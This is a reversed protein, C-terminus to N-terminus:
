CPLKTARSFRRLRGSHILISKESPKKGGLEGIPYCWHTALQPDQCDTQWDVCGGFWYLPLVRPLYILILSSASMGIVPAGDCDINEFECLVVDGFERKMHVQLTLCTLVAYVESRRVVGVVEEPNREDELKIDEEKIELEDILKELKEKVEKKLEELTKEKPEPATDEGEVKAKKAVPEISSNTEEGEERPRKKSDQAELEM